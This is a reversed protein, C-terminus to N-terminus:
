RAARIAEKLDLTGEYITKGIIVGTLGKKELRKFNQIDDLTSVGGAAITEMGTQDLFEEIAPFNPGRLTGDVTTDTYITLKFGIKKMDRGLRSATFGTEKVWGEIVVQGNRADISPLIRGKFERFMEELFDLSAVAKSGIIVRSVGGALLMEVTEASRVGGGLELPTKVLRVIEQVVSWNKPTGAFAGDLDVLHLF